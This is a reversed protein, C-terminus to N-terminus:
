LALHISAVAKDKPNKHAAKAICHWAIMAPALSGYYDCFGKM